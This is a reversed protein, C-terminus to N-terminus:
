GRGVDELAAALREQAQTLLSSQRSLAALDFAGDVQAGIEAVEDLLLAIEGTIPHDAPDGPAANMTAARAAMAAPSPAGPKPAPSPSNM